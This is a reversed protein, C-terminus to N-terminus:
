SVLLSGVYLGVGAIIAWCLWYGFAELASPKYRDAIQLRHLAVMAALHVLGGAILLPWMAAGIQEAFAIGIGVGALLAGFTSLSGLANRRREQQAAM